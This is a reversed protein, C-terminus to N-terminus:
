GKHLADHRTVEWECLDYGSFRILVKGKKVSPHLREVKCGPLDKPMNVLETHWPVVAALKVIMGPRPTSVVIFLDAASNLRAWRTIGPPTL